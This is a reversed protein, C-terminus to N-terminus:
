EAVSGPDPGGDARPMGPGVPTGSTGAESRARFLEMTNFGGPPVDVGPPPGDRRVAAVSETVAQSEPLSPTPRVAPATVEGAQAQVVQEIAKVRSSVFKETAEPTAAVSAAKKMESELVSRATATEREEAAKLDASIVQLAEPLLDEVEIPTDVLTGTLPLVPRDSVHLKPEPAMFEKATTKPWKKTQTTGASKARALDLAKQVISVPKQSSADVAM